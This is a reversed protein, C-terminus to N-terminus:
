IEEGNTIRNMNRLLKLNLKDNNRLRYLFQNTSVEGDKTEGIVVNIQSKNVGYEEGLWKQVEFVKSILYRKEKTTVEVTIDLKGKEVM